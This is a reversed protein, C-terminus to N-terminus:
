LTHRNQSRQASANICSHPNRGERYAWSGNQGCVCPQLGSHPSSTLISNVPTGAPGLLSHKIAVFSLSLFFFLSCCCPRGGCSASNRMMASRIGDTGSEIRGCNCFFLPSRRNIRPRKLDELNGAVTSRSTRWVGM